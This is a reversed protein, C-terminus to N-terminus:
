LPLICADERSSVGGNGLAEPAPHLDPGRKKAAELFRAEETQAQGVLNRRATEVPAGAGLRDFADAVGLSADVTRPDAPVM